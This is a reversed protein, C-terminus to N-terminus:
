YAKSFNTISQQQVRYNNAFARKSLNGKLYYRVAAVFQGAGGGGGWVFDLHKSDM